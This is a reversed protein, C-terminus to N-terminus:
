SPPRDYVSFLLGGAANTPNPASPNILGVYMEYMSRVFARFCSRCPECAGARAQRLTNEHCIIRGNSVGVHRWRLTMDVEIDPLADGAGVSSEGSLM